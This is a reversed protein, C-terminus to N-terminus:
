RRWEGGGDCSYSRGCGTYLSRLAKQERPREGNENAVALAFCPLLGYFGYVFLLWALFAYEPKQALFLGDKMLVVSQLPRGAAPRPPPCEFPKMSAVDVREFSSCSPPLSVLLSVFRHPLWVREWAIIIVITLWCRTLYRRTRDQGTRAARIAPPSLSGESERQIKNKTDSRQVPDNATQPLLAKSPKTSHNEKSQERRPQVPASASALMPNNPHLVPPKAKPRAERLHSKQDEHKPHDFPIQDGTHHIGVQLKASIQAKTRKLLRLLIAPTSSPSTSPADSRHNTSLLDSIRQALSPSQLRLSGRVAIANTMGVALRLADAGHGYGDFVGDRKEEGDSYVM